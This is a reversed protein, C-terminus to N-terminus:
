FQIVGRVGHLFRFTLGITIIIVIFTLKNNIENLARTQQDLAAFVLFRRGHGM